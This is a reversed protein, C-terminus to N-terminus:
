GTQTIKDQGCLRQRRFLPGLCIPHVSEITRKTLSLEFNSLLRFISHFTYERFLAGLLFPKMEIELNDGFTRRLRNLQTWGLFAWPSSFDYWFQVRVKGALRNSAMCRPMLSRLALVLEKTKSISLSLLAAEVFHMRDQGWYFRGHRAEGNFDTWNVEPIWFGPVGFAGRSIADQTASELAKRAEADKFAAETLSDAGAVGSEKAIRLLEGLDSVDKGEVWYARFLAKSLAPRDTASVYHLLRLADVSKRPHQPPPNYAVQYRRLMRQM